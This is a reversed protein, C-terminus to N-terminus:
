SRGRKPHNRSQRTTVNATPSQRRIWKVFRQLEPDRRLSDIDGFNAELHRNDFVAHIQKHCPSCLPVRDDAKGGRGRPTLHHQTILHKPVTRGCLECRHTEPQRQM